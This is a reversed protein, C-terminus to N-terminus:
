VEKGTAATKGSNLQKLEDRIETLLAIDKPTPVTQDSSDEAREKMRNIFKVVVFITFAIILFDILSQLFIGYEILVPDTVTGDASTGAPALEYNLASLKVGSTAYGLPPTIINKVLSNVIANFATGLVVAVALDLMNGKVAFKKFEQWFTM